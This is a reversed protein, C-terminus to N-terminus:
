LIQYVNVELNVTSNEYRNPPYPPSIIKMSPIPIEDFLYGETVLLQSTAGVLLLILLTTAANYTQRM